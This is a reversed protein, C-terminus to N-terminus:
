LKHQAQLHGPPPWAAFWPQSSRTSPRPGSLSLYPACQPLISSTQPTKPFDSTHAVVPWKYPYALPVAKTPGRTQYPMTEPFRSDGPHPSCHPGPQHLSLSPAGGAARPTLVNMLPLIAEALVKTQSSAAERGSALCNLKGGFSGAAMWMSSSLCLSNSCTQTCAGKFPVPQSELLM